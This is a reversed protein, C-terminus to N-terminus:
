LGESERLWVYVGSIEWATASVDAARRGYKGLAVGCKELLGTLSVEKRLLGKTKCSKM